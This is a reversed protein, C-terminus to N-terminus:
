TNIHITGNFRQRQRLSNWKLQSTELNNNNNNNNKINKEDGKGDRKKKVIKRKNIKTKEV